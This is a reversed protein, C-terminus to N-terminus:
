KGCCPCKSICLSLIQRLFINQLRRFSNIDFMTLPLILVKDDINRAYTFLSKNHALSSVCLSLLQQQYYFSHNNRFHAVTFYLCLVFPCNYNNEVIVLADPLFVSHRRKRQAVGCLILYKRCLPKQATRVNQPLM